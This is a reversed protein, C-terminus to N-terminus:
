PVLVLKGRTRRTEIRRHAEAAASLPLAEVAPPPLAGREILDAIARLHGANPRVGVSRVRPGGFAGALRTWVVRGLHRVFNGFTYADDDALSTITVFTGGPALLGVTRPYYGGVADLIVDFRGLDPARFAAPDARDLVRDAGRALCAAASAASATVVVERAGRAKAIPVAVSGIGGAGGHVLVRGGRGLRGAEVLALWATLSVLPLSALAADGLAPPAPALEDDRFLALEAYCGPRRVYDLMGFVRQGPAFRTVAPGVAEVTG